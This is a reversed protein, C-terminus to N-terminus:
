NWYSFHFDSIHYSLGSLLCLRIWAHTQAPAVSPCFGSVFALIELFSLHELSSDTEKEWSTFAM